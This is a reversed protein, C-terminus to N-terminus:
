LRQDAEKIQGKRTESLVIKKATILDAPPHDAPDVSTLDIVFDPLPLVGGTEEEAHAGIPLAFILANLLPWAVAACLLFGALTDNM